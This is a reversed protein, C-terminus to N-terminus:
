KAKGGNEYRRRSGRYGAPTTMPAPRGKGNNNVKRSSSNGNSKAM